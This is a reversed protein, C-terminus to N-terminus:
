GAEEETVLVFAPNPLPLTGVFTNGVIPIGRCDKSLSLFAQKSNASHASMDTRPLGNPIVVENSSMNM